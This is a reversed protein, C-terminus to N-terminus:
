LPRPLRGERYGSSEFHAQGTPFTGHRVQEAVDTNTELYWREDVTIPFPLRGEFYGHDVFHQRASRILGDSIGQAVDGYTRLYWAEDVEIGSLLSRIMKQIDEYTANVRQEGRSPALRLFTKIIEFPPIYHVL